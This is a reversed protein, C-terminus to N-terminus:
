RSRPLVVIRLWFEEIGHVVEFWTDLENPKQVYCNARLEYARFVDRQNVSSTLMVVPVSQLDPLRLTRCSRMDAIAVVKGSVESPSAATLYGAVLLGPLVRTILRM